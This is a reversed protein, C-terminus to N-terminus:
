HVWDQGDDAGALNGPIAAEKETITRAAARYTWDLPPREAAYSRDFEAVTDRVKWRQQGFDAAALDDAAVAFLRTGSSLIRASVPAAAFVADNSRADPPENLAWPERRYLDIARALRVASM